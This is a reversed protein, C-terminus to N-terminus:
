FCLNDKVQKDENLSLQYVLHGKPRYVTRLLHANHAMFVAHSAVDNAVSDKVRESAIATVYYGRTGGAAADRNIM